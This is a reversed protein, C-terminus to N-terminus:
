GHVHAADKRKSWEAGHTVSANTDLCLVPVSAYLEAVVGGHCGLSVDRRVREVVGHVHSQAIAISIM